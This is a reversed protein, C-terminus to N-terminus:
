LMVIMLNKKLTEELGSLARVEEETGYNNKV